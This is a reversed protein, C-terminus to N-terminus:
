WLALLVAPASGMLWYQPISGELSWSCNWGWRISKLWSSKAKTLPLICGHTVWSDAWCCSCTSNNQSDLEKHTVSSRTDLFLWWSCHPFFLAELHSAALIPYSRTQNGTIRGSWGVLMSNPRCQRGTATLCHGSYGDTGIGYRIRHPFLPEQLGWIPGHMTQAM